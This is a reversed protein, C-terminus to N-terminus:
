VPQDIDLPERRADNLGMCVAERREAVPQEVACQSSGYPQIRVFPPVTGEPAFCFSYRVRPGTIAPKKGDPCAGRTKLSNGSRLQGCV